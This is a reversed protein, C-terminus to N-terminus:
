CLVVGSVSILFKKMSKCSYLFGLSTFSFEKISHLYSLVDVFIHFSVSDITLSVITM